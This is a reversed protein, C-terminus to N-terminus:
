TGCGWDALLIGLDSQGTEGDGDIDGPCNGGTCGWDSLLVGLDSQVTDGMTVYWSDEGVGYSVATPFSPCGVGRDGLAAPQALGLTLSILATLAACAGPRTRYSDSRTNM